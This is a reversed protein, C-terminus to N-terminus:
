EEMLEPDGKAKPVGEEVEMEMDQLVAEVMEQHQLFNFQM